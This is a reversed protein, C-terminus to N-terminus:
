EQVLKWAVECYDVALFQAAVDPEALNTSWLPIKKGEVHWGIRIEFDVSTLATEKFAQKAISVVNKGIILTKLSQCNYFANEDITIDTRTGTGIAVNDLSVCREFASTEIIANPMYIVTLKEALKFAELEVTLEANNANVSYLNSCQYFARVGISTVPDYIEVTKLAQAYAFAEDAIDGMTVTLNVVAEVNVFPLASAPTTLTSISDCGVFATEVIDTKLVEKKPDTEDPVKKVVNDSIVLTTLGSCDKFANAGVTSISPSMTVMRLSDCGEFASYDIFACITNEAFAVTTLNAQADAEATYFMMAPVYQVQEGFVVSVSAGSHNFVDVGIECAAANFAISALKPCAAFAGDKIMTVSESVTLNTLAYYGYFTYQEITTVAPITIGTQAVDAIYLMASKPAATKDDDVTGNALPNASGDEFVIGCWAALDEVAIKELKANNSFAGSAVAKLSAPIYIEDLSPNNSFAKAGITEVSAGLVASKLVACDTFANAGISTVSDSIVVSELCDNNVFAGDGITALNVGFEVTKLVDMEAFAYAGISTVSDPLVIRELANCDYFAYEAIVEVTEGFDMINLSANNEFAHEGITKVSDSLIVWELKSCASVAYKGITEISGILELRTIWDYGRFGKNISTVPKGNHMSPVYVKAHRCNGIGYLSYTGDGNDIYELDDCAKLGCATCEDNVWVHGKMPEGDERYTKGCYACQYIIYADEECPPVDVLVEWKHGAEGIAEIKQIETTGCVTCTVEKEGEICTAEKIIVGDNWTHPLKEVVSKKTENCATCTYEEEGAETCTAEKLVNATGWKHSLKEITQTETYGCACTLVRSGERSCTADMVSTIQLDHVHEDSSSVVEKGGGCAVLTAAAVLTMSAVCFAKLIQKFKKM